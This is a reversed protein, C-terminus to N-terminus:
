SFTHCKKCQVACFVAHAACGKLRRVKLTTLIRDCTGQQLTNAQVCPCNVTRPHRVFALLGLVGLLWCGAPDYRLTREGGQLRLLLLLLLLLLKM